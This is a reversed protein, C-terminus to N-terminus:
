KKKQDEAKKSAWEYSSEIKESQKQVVKRIDQPLDKKLADRYDELAKSEGTKVAALVARDDNRTVATKMDIWARHAAGAITGEDEAEKGLERM